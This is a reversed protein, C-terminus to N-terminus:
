PGPRRRCRRLPVHVRQMFGNGPMPAHMASDSARPASRIRAWRASRNGHALRLLAEGFRRVAARRTRM